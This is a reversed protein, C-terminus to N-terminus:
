SFSLTTLPNNFYLTYSEGYLGGQQMLVNPGSAAYIAGTGTICSGNYSANACLVDVQTGATNNVMTIGYQALYNTVPAGAVYYPAVTTPIADFNVTDAALPLAAGVLASVMILARIIRM